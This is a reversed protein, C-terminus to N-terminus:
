SDPNTVTIRGLSVDIYPKQHERTNNQIQVRQQLDENGKLEVPLLSSLLGLTQNPVRQLVLILCSEYKKRDPNHRQADNFLELPMHQPGPWVHELQGPQQVPVANYVYAQTALCPSCHHATYITRDMPHISVRLKYGDQGKIVGQAALQLREQLTRKRGAVNAAAGGNVANGGLMSGNGFLSSGMGTNNTNNNNNPNNGFTSTNLLSSGLGNQLPQQQSQNNGFLSTNLGSSPQQQQQQQQAPQGFLSTTGAGTMNQGGGNNAGFLSTSGTTGAGLGGFSPAAGPAQGPQQQQQQQQQNGGFGGFLSTGTTGAAPAANQLGANGFLSTTTGSAAQNANTSGFL